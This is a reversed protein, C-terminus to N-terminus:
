LTKEMVMADEGDNYYTQWVDILGYGEKEYMAVAAQNSMRVTLRVRPVGLNAECGQLLARGIGRRQCRPDVAITAIWGWGDRPRPDGAVFGVMQGDEVAKLRIVEPFTLVAILDFLPWADKNFSIQELKRLANLDRLSAKVIEM